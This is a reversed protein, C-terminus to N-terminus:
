LSGLQQNLTKLHGSFNAVLLQMHKGGQLPASAAITDILWLFVM